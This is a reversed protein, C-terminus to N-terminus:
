KEPLAFDAVLPYHDSWPTVTKKFATVKLQPDAMIYDIRLTPSLSAFSRGVGFGRRLFADTRDGKIKFYAFSNPVDNFDGCLIVPYPSSDLERRVLEAQKSRFAYAHRFKKMVGMSRVVSSDEAKALRTLVGYDGGNFHLTQLHTAFIRTRQGGINVDVHILSEGPSLSDEGSYRIRLTDLLPYRSFIAVGHEYMKDWRAHDRSFYYYPYHLTDTIYPINEPLEKPNNSELFEEMCLVDPDMEKVFSMIGNRFSSGRTKRNMADMRSVNWQMVRFTGAEKKKDFSSFPHFAFFASIQGWGLLLAVLPVFAWKSKLFWWIFVFCVLALTILPFGVGIVAIYWFRAPHLFSTCCGLLFVLVSGITALVFLKRTFVRLFRTM